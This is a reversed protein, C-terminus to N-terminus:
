TQEIGAELPIDPTGDVDVFVVFDIRRGQLIEDARCHREIELALALRLGPSRAALPGVLKMVPGQTSDPQSKWGSGERLFFPDPTESASCSRRSGPHNRHAHSLLRSAAFVLTSRPGHAVAATCRGQEGPLRRNRPSALARSSFPEQCSARIAVDERCKRATWPPYSLPLADAKCAPPWLNSDQEAWTPNSFRPHYNLQNYRRGTM